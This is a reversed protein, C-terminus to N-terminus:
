ISIENLGPCLGGCTCIGAKAHTPDFYVKERPGAKEMLNSSDLVIPQKKDFVNVNALVYSDDSVYNATYDGHVTSLKIPSPITCPGLNDITFDFKEEAM